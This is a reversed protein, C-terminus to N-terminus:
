QGTRGSKVLKYIGGYNAGYNYCVHIIEPIGNIHESVGSIFPGYKQKLLLEVGDLVASLSEDDKFEGDTKRQLINVLDASKFYFEDTM